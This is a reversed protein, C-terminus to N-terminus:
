PIISLALSIDNAKAFVMNILEDESLKITIEQDKKSASVAIVKTNNAIISTSSISSKKPSAIIVLEDDLEITSLPTIVWQSNITLAYENESLRHALSNGDKSEKLDLETLISNNIIKQIAIQATSDYNTIAYDPILNKPIKIRKTNLSSISEGFEINKTSIIVETLVKKENEYISYAFYFACVLVLTSVVKLITKKLFDKRHAEWNITTNASTKLLEKYFKENIM